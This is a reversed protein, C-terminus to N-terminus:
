RCNSCWQEGGKTEEEYVPLQYPLGLHGDQLVFVAFRSQLKVDANAHIVAGLCHLHHLRQHLLQRGHFRQQEDELYEQQLAAEILHELTAQAGVRQAGHHSVKQQGM